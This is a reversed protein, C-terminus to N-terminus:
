RGCGKSKPSPVKRFDGSSGSFSAAMFPPATGDFSSGKHPRRSRSVGNNVAAPIQGKRSYVTEVHGNAESPVFLRRREGFAAWKDSVATTAIGSQNEGQGLSKVIHTTIDDPTNGRAAVPQTHPATPLFRTSTGHPRQRSETSHVVPVSPYLNPLPSTHLSHNLTQANRSTAESCINSDSNCYKFEPDPLACSRSDDISPLSLAKELTVDARPVRGQSKPDPSSSAMTALLCSLTSLSPPSVVVFTVTECEDLLAREKLILDRNFSFFADM